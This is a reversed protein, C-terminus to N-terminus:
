PRWLTLGLSAAEKRDLVAGIDVVVKANKLKSAITKLPYLDLLQKHKVAFIVADCTPFDNWQSLSRQYELQFEKPDAMPDLMFVSAGCDELYKAVDVVKTNRLDPVNEKFTVGLIGINLKGSTTPSGKLVLQVTKQGIFSAMSDNVRRGSNIIEPYFNLGSALHTLYYPDVGICHGGVLGPRFDLFNWKTRAASLVDQTDLGLREFIQALENVLGINVDRQINEIVKAAEASAINPAKHIGAEIVDGYVASLLEIVEPTSGSVVKVIKDITRLKDGPNVREPSYGLFFDEQYKLGSEEALIQKCITETLGPFVTSEYCVVTGPGMVKGITRSASELPKLDPKRFRDIPTPVAVIIISAHALEGPESTFTLNQKDFFAAKDVEGTHDIGRRLSEVRSKDIDFGLVKFKRALLSALPLGVYGLGVVAVSSKRERLSHISAPHAAM